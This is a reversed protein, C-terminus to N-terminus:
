HEEPPNTNIEDYDTVPELPARYPVAERKFEM